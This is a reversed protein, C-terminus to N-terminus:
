AIEAYISGLAYYFVLLAFPLIIAGFILGGIIPIAAVLLGITIIISEVIGFIILAILLKLIGIAKLDEWVESISIAASLSDYHAFRMVGVAYLLEFALYIIAVIIIGVFFLVMVLGAGDSTTGSAM